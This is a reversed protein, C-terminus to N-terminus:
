PPTVSAVVAVYAFISNTILPCAPRLSTLTPQIRVVLAAYCMVGFSLLMVRGIKLAGLNQPNPSQISTNSNRPTHPSQQSPASAQPMTQHNASVEASVTLPDSRQSRGADQAGM